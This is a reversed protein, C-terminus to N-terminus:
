IFSWIAGFCDLAKRGRLSSKFRQNRGGHMLQLSQIM